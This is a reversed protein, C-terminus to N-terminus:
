TQGACSDGVATHASCPIAIPPLTEPDFIVFLVELPKGLAPGHRSVPLFYGGLKRRGEKKSSGQRRRYGVNDLSRAVAGSRDLTDGDAARDTVRGDVVRHVLLIRGYQRRHRLDEGILHGDRGLGPRFGLRFRSLHSLLQPEGRGGDGLKEFDQTLLVHRFLFDRHPQDLDCSM